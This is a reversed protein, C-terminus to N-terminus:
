QQGARGQEAVDAMDHAHLVAGSVSVQDTHAEEFAQAAAQGTWNTGNPNAIQAVYAQAAHDLINGTARWRAASQSLQNATQDFAAIRSRTLPGIM